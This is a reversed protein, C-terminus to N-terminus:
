TFWSQLRSQHLQLQLLDTSISQVPSPLNRTLNAIRRFIVLNEVTEANKDTLLVTLKAIVSPIVEATRVMTVADDLTLQPGAKLLLRRVDEDYVGHIIQSLIYNPACM